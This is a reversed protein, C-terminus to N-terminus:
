SRYNYGARLLTLCVSLPVYDASYRIKGYLLAGLYLGILTTYWRLNSVGLAVRPNVTPTAPQANVDQVNEQAEVDKQTENAPADLGISSRSMTEVKEQLDSM